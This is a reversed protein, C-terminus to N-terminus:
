KSNHTQVFSDIVIGQANVDVDLKVKMNYDKLNTFEPPLTEGSIEMLTMMPMFMKGYDASMSLLGNASLTEKALGDAIEESKGGSYIALHNGKLAMNATFGLYPPLQLASNLDVASGDTPLQINALEPAFPKVMNFLTAPDDASLTVIADLGKLEVQETGESLEYNILSMSLGKVGNAMGTFMGLMAPSQDEMEAQMQQLPDCQYSPTLLENWVKTLAPVFENVDVGLGFSFVSNNVDQTYAPLFGRIQKLAGMIVQNNSEIVTSFGMRTQKDKIEFDTYGIVTRPWNQAIGTLETHCVESRLDAFPDEKTISYFHNLQKALQNGDSTTIAKVLEQHNIYSLGDKLFGHKAFIDEVIGTESLPNPVAKIGLATEILAPDSFSTALTITLVGKDIALVLDITENETEDLLPYARYSIGGITRLQHTLGSEAEIGDLQAWLVDPKAIDLKLVPLAGLTYFYSTLSNPLGFTDVFTQGDKIGTMYRNFLGLFFKARPDNEDQMLDQLEQPYQKQADPISDIYDKIPFPKFQASFVPTDAPVFALMANNPEAGKQQTAWYAGAGIAIVAAAVLAKKM